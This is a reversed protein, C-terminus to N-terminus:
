ATQSKNIEARMMAVFTSVAAEWLWADTILDGTWRINVDAWHCTSGEDTMGHIPLHVAGEWGPTAYVWFTENVKVYVTGMMPDSEAYQNTVLHDILHEAYEEDMLHQYAATYCTTDRM